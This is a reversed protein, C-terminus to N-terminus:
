EGSSAGQNGASESLTGFPVGIAYELDILGLLYNFQQAVVGMRAQRLAEEANQVSNFDQLGGRYAAETSEYSQRALEVTQTRAEISNRTKELSLATNYIELETVRILQALGINMTKIQNDVDKLGQGEKTFPFLNNLKWQLTISFTGGKQWNDGDGWSDKWPDKIFVPAYNWGFILNPTWLQLAQASRASKMYLLQQQLELVDIKGSAAQSILEATDLNAYVVDGELPILEFQTDYPLGLYMAFNAMALKRNNEAEEIDPRLNDRNVRAQLLTLEPALGSNYNAQAINVQREAAALSDRQVVLSEELLLMQYYAKRVDRELQVKAKEFTVLGARYDQRITKIGAFLASSLALSASINGQVHWRPVGQPDSVFVGAPNYLTGGVGGIAIPTGPGSLLDPIASTGRVSDHKENDMALTGQVSLDPLFQNWVLDSKRKKTDLAIRASELSLNNKIALEVAEGPSLRRTGPAPGAPLPTEPAAPANEQATLFGTGLVLFLFLALLPPGIKRGGPHKGRGISVAGGFRPVTGSPRLRGDQKQIM